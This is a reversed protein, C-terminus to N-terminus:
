VGVDVGIERLGRSLIIAKVPTFVRQGFQGRQKAPRAEGDDQGAMQLRKLVARDTEGSPELARAGGRQGRQKGGARRQAQDFRDFLKRGMFGPFFERSGSDRGGSSRMSRM